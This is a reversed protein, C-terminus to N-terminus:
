GGTAFDFRFCSTDLATVEASSRPRPPLLLLSLYAPVPLNCKLVVLYWVLTFSMCSGEAVFIVSRTTQVVTRSVAMWM